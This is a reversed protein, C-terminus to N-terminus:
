APVPPLVVLDGPFVLNPDGSALTTRNRDCVTAWYPAIEPDAVDARSRGTSEGIQRAALEWLSDGPAVAVTREAAPAPAPATATTTATASAPVPSTTTPPTGAAPLSAIGGSRGDRVQSTAPPQAARAATTPALAVGALITAAFAADVARRVIPLAAWRVARVAAPARTAVAVLYLLTGGLLWWAGALAIWRLGAVFADSPPTVQLWEGLHGLPVRYERRAGLATLAAVAGCELVVTVATALLAQPRRLANM